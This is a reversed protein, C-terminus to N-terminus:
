KKSHVVINGGGIAQNMGNDYVVVETGNDEYWIKIRFTDPSGDGAWIQFKYLGQGNITGEGKFKAFDSGTVVLWEYSTSHFNLNGAKFQFETNGDPVSAGKKYKSVFGFTAKGTPSVTGAGVNDWYVDYDDGYNYAQLMMNAWQVSDFTSVDSWVLVGNIYYKYETSTLHASLTYWNGYTFNSPLGLDYWGAQYGNAADQDTDQSFIRFGVGETFGMIPYGSIDGNTDITTAWLSAHRQNGQWDNGIYLDATIYTDIGFGLDYKRGQYNYFTSGHPLYDTGSIGVHLRNDGDFFSAEFAAPAYRDTYWVGPVQSDALEPTTDFADYYLLTSMATSPSDIWGGGTVFGGSPDYIVAITCAPDSEIFGDNVTLCVDYIGAEGYTHTPTAGANPSINGDGWHWDYTLADGDPDSSGIGDFPGAELPFLYPGNPNAVPPQNLPACAFSGEEIFVWSDLVHDGADAIALRLHNTGPNVSAEAGLVVTLGDAEIDIFPGGDNLDNNIYYAPNSPNTGPLGGGNSYGNNVNNISVPTIGDPLLAINTGNLFFGFVDNYPTNVFENYEESTFVYSFSIVDEGGTGTPCEFDFELVTADNTTYGPILGNLDSDGPLVFDTTINDASNPGVVDVVKGSGLVVGSEFGVNGTGSSFSGAGRSDGTFTISSITPATSDTGVLLGALQNPTLSDDVSLSSILTMAQLSFASGKAQGVRGEQASAVGVLSLVLVFVIALTISSKYINRNM